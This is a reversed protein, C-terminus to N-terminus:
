SLKSIQVFRKAGRKYDPASSVARVTKSLPIIRFPAADSATLVFTWDAGAERCDGWYLRVSMLPSFLVIGPRKCRLRRLFSTLRETLSGSHIM